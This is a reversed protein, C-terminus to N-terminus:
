AQEELMRDTIVTHHLVLVLHGRTFACLITPFVVCSCVSNASLGRRGWYDCKTFELVIFVKLLILPPAMSVLLFLIYTTKMCPAAQM